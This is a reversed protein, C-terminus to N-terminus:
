VFFKCETTSIVDRGTGWSWSSLVWSSASSVWREFEKWDRRVAWDFNRSQRSDMELPRVDEV